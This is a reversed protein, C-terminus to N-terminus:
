RRAPKVLAAFRELRELSEPLHETRCDFILESVGLRAYTDVDELIQDPGGSFPRRGEPDKVETDYIPTKFSITLRTPDRGERETLRHLEDLSRRMEAPRLPVAAIGGV